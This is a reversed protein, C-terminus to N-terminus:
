PRLVSGGQIKCRHLLKGLVRGEILLPSQYYLWKSNPQDKKKTWNLEQVTYKEVQLFHDVEEITPKGKANEAKKRDSFDSM